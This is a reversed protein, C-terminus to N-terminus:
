HKFHTYNKVLLNVTDRRFDVGVRDGNYYFLDAAKFAIKLGVAPSVYKLRDFKLILEAWAGVVRLPFIIDM